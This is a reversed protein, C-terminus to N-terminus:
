MNGDVAFVSPMSRIGTGKGFLQCNGDYELRAVVEVIQEAKSRAAQLQM